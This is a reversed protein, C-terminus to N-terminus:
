PSEEAALASTLVARMAEVPPEAATFACFQALAQELFWEAGPITVAGAARAARLLPTDAPRYVADLVISGNRLADPPVPCDDAHLKSGLPTTHVLVDHPTAAIQAPDIARAGFARALEECKARDRGAVVLDAGRLGHLAARAAGGTGIVIATSGAMKRDRKCLARGVCVRVATADTNSASWGEDTRVLTNAAGCSEVADDRRTALRAADAKFPMTVSLGHVGLEHALGLFTEFDHPEFAVYVADLDLARLGAGHVLPSLSHGVPRGAVGLIRTSRSAGRVPWAARLEDAPIQGPATATGSGRMPAAYTALSGAIPALVRSFSGPAGSAFAVIPRGADARQRSLLLMRLADEACRAHTVLKLMDDPRARVELEALLALLDAPTGDTMHRSLVRRARFRRPDTSFWPVDVFSAGAEDAVDLVDMRDEDSQTFAGFAEPGNLAVLIPRGVRAIARKLPGRIQHRWCHDLRLEIVDAFPVQERAIEVLSELDQALVSVVTGSLGSVRM